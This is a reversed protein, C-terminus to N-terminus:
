SDRCAHFRVVGRPSLSEHILWEDQPLCLAAALEGRRFGARISAPM